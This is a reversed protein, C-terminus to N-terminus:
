NIRNNKTKLQESIFQAVHGITKLSEIEEDSIRLDFYTELEIVIEFLSLSDLNLDNMLSTQSSMVSEDITAVDTITKIIKAEIEAVTRDDM